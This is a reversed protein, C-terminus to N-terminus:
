RGDVLFYEKIYSRIDRLSAFLSRHQSVLHNKYNNAENSSFNCNLESCTYINLGPHNNTKLIHKRLNEVTACTFNCFRCKYILKNRSNHVLVHRDYHQKSSTFYNCNDCRFKSDSTHKVLLFTNNTNDCENPHRCKIHRNLESKRKCSFQDCMNCKMRNNINQDHVLEHTKLHSSKITSYDCMTFPCKLLNRSLRQKISKHLQVSSQKKYSPSELTPVSEGNKNTSFHNTRRKHAQLHPLTSFIKFCKDCKRNNVDCTEGHTCLHQWLKGRAIDKGCVICPLRQHLKISLPYTKNDSCSHPLIRKLVRPHKLMKHYYLMTVNDCTFDCSKICGKGINDDFAEDCHISSEVKKGLKSTLLRKGHELSCNTRVHASLEQPFAFRLGCFGCQSTQELHKKWMHDEHEKVEDFNEECFGCSIRECIETKM